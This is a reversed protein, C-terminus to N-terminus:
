AAYAAISKENSDSGSMASRIKAVVRYFRYQSIKTSEDDV